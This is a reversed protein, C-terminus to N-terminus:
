QGSVLRNRLRNLAQPSHEHRVSYIPVNACLAMLAHMERRNLDKSMLNLRFVQSLIKELAKIPSVPEIWNTTQIREPQLLYIAKLKKPGRPQGDFFHNLKENKKWIRILPNSPVAEFHSRVKRLRVADDSYVGYGHKLMHHAFTSKGVGADGIVLQATEGMVLTAAHLVLQKKLSVSLPLIHHILAVVKEQPILAANFHCTIRRGSSHIFFDGFAPLRVLFDGRVQYFQSYIQGDEYSQTHFLKPKSGSRNSHAAPKSVVVMDLTRKSRTLRCPSLPFDSKVLYGYLQYAM